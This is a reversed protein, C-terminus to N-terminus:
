ATFFCWIRPTHTVSLVTKKEKLMWGRFFVCVWICTLSGRNPIRLLLLYSLPAGPLRLLGEAWWQFRSHMSPQIRPYVRGEKDNLSISKVRQQGEEESGGEWECNHDNVGASQLFFCVFLDGNDRKEAELSIWIGRGVSGSLVGLTPHFNIIISPLCTDFLLWLM